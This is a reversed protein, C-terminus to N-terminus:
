SKVERAFQRFAIEGAQNALRAIAIYHADIAETIQQLTKEKVNVNPRDKM